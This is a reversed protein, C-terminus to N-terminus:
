AGPEQSNANQAASIGRARAALRGRTILLSEDAVGQLLGAQHTVVVVCKGANRMQTLLGTIERSSNADLNSFPEDLLVIDPDHIIARALSLRQRMGQSYDGVHRQLKHDLSVQRMLDEFRRDDHLGYLGGFYRMNELGSLEDYLMSAHAMYGVRREPSSVTGLSPKTLGAIVRLLTSKGAGNEGFIAYM